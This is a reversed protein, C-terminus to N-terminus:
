ITKLKKGLHHNLNWKKTTDLALKLCIFFNDQHTKFYDITEPALDTDLCLLSEKYADKALFVMNRSFESRQSLSYDLMFGNKLLVEDIIRDRDWTM